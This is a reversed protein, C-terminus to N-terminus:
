RRLVERIHHSTNRRPTRAPDVWQPPIFEPVGDAAFVIEWHGFHIETHHRRCLLVGNQYASPGDDLWHRVHHCDTWGAPRDCGPWSCGKDRQTIARRIATPFLRSSRGVDLVQSASGLVMPIINADCALVRARAASIPGGHALYGAGIKRQLDEFDMTITIHPREGGQVPADGLDLYRRLVETLAQGRRTAASRPDPGGAATPQPKALGDIAQSLVEVGEDDLQGHFRTLGTAANRGGVTLEVRDAPDKGDLTGDPDCTAAVLRAFQAFPAPETVQGHEVLLKQCLERTGPDVGAPLTRMTTVITRTQETGIVGAALADGLVPLVPETDGGSPQEQPLVARAAAVRGRADPASITLTQRLLAAASTAGRTTHLNRTSVEGAVHVQAAYVLRAAHEFSGALTLLDNDGIKWFETARMGIAAACAAAVDAQATDLETGGAM